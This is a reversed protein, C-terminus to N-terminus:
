QVPCQKGTHDMYYEGELLVKSIPVVTYGNNEFYELISPLAEPTHLAANHFLCISGSQVKSTVRKTIESASLDKWDLSDSDWVAALRQSALIASYNRKKGCLNQYPPIDTFM